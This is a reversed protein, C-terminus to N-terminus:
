LRDLYNELPPINESLGKRKRVDKVIKGAYSTPDFPSGPVIEWHSFMMQPFAQGSTHERIYACFGFSEMVPLYGKLVSMNGISKEESCISGRKNNLCKYVTGIHTDPVTIEVLYLPEMIAPQGTLISAYMVRRAAPFLQGAGRHIADAHLTVDHLNFRVGYVPEECLPGTSTAWNLGSNLHDKIENLYQAGKTTDVLMNTVDGGEPGVSWIKKAENPDWKFDQVLIKSRSNVDDKATIEKALMKKVLDSDLPEASM